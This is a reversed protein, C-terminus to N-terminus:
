GLKVGSSVSVAEGCLVASTPVSTPKQTAENTPAETAIDTAADTEKGESNDNCSIFSVSIVFLMAVCLAISLLRKISM